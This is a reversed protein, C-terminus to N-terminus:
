FWMFYNNLLIMVYFKAVLGCGAVVTPNKIRGAYYVFALLVISVPLKPLWYASGMHAMAFAMVPNAEVSGRDAALARNTTWVDLPQAAIITGLMVRTMLIKLDIAM